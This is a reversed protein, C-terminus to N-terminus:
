TTPPPPMAGLMSRLAPACRQLGRCGFNGDDKAGARDIAGAALGQEVLEAFRMVVYEDMIEQKIAVGAAPRPDIVKGEAWISEEWPTLGDDIWLHVRDDEGRFIYNAGRM